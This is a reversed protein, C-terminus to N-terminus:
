EPAPATHTTLTPSPRPHHKIIILLLDDHPPQGHLWLQVEELIAAAILAAPHRAHVKLLHMLRQSGFCVGEQNRIEALGDSWFLLVDENGLLVSQEALAPESALGLAPSRGPLPTLTDTAAQWWFPPP